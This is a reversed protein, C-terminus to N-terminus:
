LAKDIAAIANQNKFSGTVDDAVYAQLALLLEPAAAILKTNEKTEEITGFQKMECIPTVDDGGMTGVYPTDAVVEYKDNGNLTKGCISVMWKSKTGKFKKM